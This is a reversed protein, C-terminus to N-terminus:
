KNIRSRNRERQRTNPRPRESPAPSPSNAAAPGRTYDAVTAASAVPTTVECNLARRVANVREQLLTFTGGGGPAHSTTVRAGSVVPRNLAEITDVKSQPSFAKYIRLRSLPSSQGNGANASRNTEPSVYRHIDITSGSIDPDRSYTTMGPRYPEPVGDYTGACYDAIRRLENTGADAEMASCIQQWREQNRVPIGRVGIPQNADGELDRFRLPALQEVAGNEPNLVVVQGHISGMGWRPNASFITEVCIRGEPCGDGQYVLDPGMRENLRRRIDSTDTVSASLDAVTQLRPGGETRASISRCAAAHSYQVFTILVPVLVLAKM